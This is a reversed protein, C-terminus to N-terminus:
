NQNDHNEIEALHENWDNESIAVKDKDNKFDPTKLSWYAKNDKSKYYYRM